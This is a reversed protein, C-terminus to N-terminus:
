KGPKRGWNTWRIWLRDSFLFSSPPLRRSIVCDFKNHSIVRVSLLTESRSQDVVAVLMTHSDWQKDNVLVPAGAGTPPDDVITSLKDQLKTWTADVDPTEDTLRVAIHSMGSSSYSDVSLIGETETLSRQIPESVLSEIEGPSAGPFRTTITGFRVESKPDERKSRTVFLTAILDATRIVSDINRIIRTESIEVSRHRAIVTKPLALQAFQDVLLSFIAEYKGAESVKLVKQDALLAPGEDVYRSLVYADFPAKLKTQNVKTDLMEILRARSSASAAELSQSEAPRLHCIPIFRNSSVIM